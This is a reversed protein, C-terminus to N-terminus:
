PAKWLRYLTVASLVAKDEFTDLYVAERTTHANTGLPGFSEMTLLGAAAMLNGDTGGGSAVATVPIGLHAALGAIEGYWRNREPTQPMPPRHIVGWVETRTGQELWPNYVLQQSAIERIRAQAWEADEVTRARLDVWAQAWAPVRNRKAFPGLDIIGVNVTLGRKYDTLRNLLVTKQALDDAANIGEHHRGGAHAAQGHVTIRFQGLGKRAIALGGWEKSSGRGGEFVMGRDHRRAETTLHPHATLSGTEEDGSLFVTVTHDDLAHMAHLSKLAYLMVVLGGKMDAVGPGYAIDGTLEPGYAVGNKRTFETFGSDPEFVTDMHGSLLVSPGTAQPGGARRAVYHPGSTRTLTEGGSGTEEIPTEPIREVTFGIRALEATVLKGVMDIGAANNSGSNIRVLRELLAVMDKKQGRVRAVIAQETDDLPPVAITSPITVPPNVGRRADDRSLKTPYLPAAPKSRAAVSAPLFLAIAAFVALRM